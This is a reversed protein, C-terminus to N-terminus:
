PAIDWQKLRQEPSLPITSKTFEQRPKLLPSGKKSKQYAQKSYESEVQEAHRRLQMELHKARIAGEKEVREAVKTKIIQKVEAPRTTTKIHPIVTKVVDDTIGSVTTSGLPKGQPKPINVSSYGEAVNILSQNKSRRIRSLNKFVEKEIEKVPPTYGLPKEPYIFKSFKDPRAKSLWQAIQTKVRPRGMIYEMIALKPHTGAAMIKTPLPVINSNGLRVLAKEVAEVVGMRAALTENAPAMSPYLKEIGTVIERAVGKYAKSAVPDLGEVFWQSKDWLERKIANAKHPTVVEGHQKLGAKIEDVLKKAKAPDPANSAKKYASKLGHAVVKNFKIKNSPDESLLRTADDVFTHIEDRFAKAKALGAESVAIDSKIVETTVAGQKSVDRGKLFKTWEKGTPMKLSSSVLRKPLTVFVYGLRKPIEQIVTPAVKFFGGTLAVLAADTGTKKFEGAITRQEPEEGGFKQKYYDEVLDMTQNSAAYMLSGGIIPSGYYSGAITASVEVAPRVVKQLAFEGAEYPTPPTYENYDPIDQSFIGATGPVQFEDQTYAEKRPYESMEGTPLGLDVKFSSDPVLGRKVAEDYIQKNKGELLGRKNAEILLEISM